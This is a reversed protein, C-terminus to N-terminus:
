NADADPRCVRCASRGADRAEARTMTSVDAQDQVLTCEPRHYSDSGAVVLDDDGGGSGDAATGSGRRAPPATTVATAQVAERLEDIAARLEVRDTRLSQAVILSGGVVILGLGALGGSIVYPIQAPEGDQSAAGNWGLFVLVFGALCYAVGLVGGLKIWGNKM